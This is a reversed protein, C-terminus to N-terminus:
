LWKPATVKRRVLDEAVAIFDDYSRQRNSRIAAEHWEPGFEGGGRINAVVFVGGKELWAAGTTPGYGPVEPIGFGGYGYLLTPNKGDPKMDKRSVQFYPVRTGDKSTALDSYGSLGPELVRKTTWTEGDDGSWQVTLNKRDRNVTKAADVYTAELNDPNSFM